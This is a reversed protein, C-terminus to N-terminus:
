SLVRICMGLFGGCHVSFVYLLLLVFIRGVVSEVGGVGARPM